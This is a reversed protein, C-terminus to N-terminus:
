LRELEEVLAGLRRKPIRPMERDETGLAISGLADSLLSEARARDAPDDIDIRHGDLLRGATIDRLQATIRPPLDKRGSGLERLLETVDSTEITPTTEDTDPGFPELPQVVPERQDTLARVLLSGIMALATGAAVAGAVSPAVVSVTLLAAAVLLSVARV